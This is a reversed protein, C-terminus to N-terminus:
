TSATTRACRQRISCARKGSQVSPCATCFCLERVEDRCENAADARLRLFRACAASSARSPAIRRGGAGLQNLRRNTRLEFDQELNKALQQRGLRRGLLQPEGREADDALAQEIMKGIRDNAIQELQRSYEASSM